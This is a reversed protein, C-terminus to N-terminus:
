DLFTDNYFTILGWLYKGQNKLYYYKRYKKSCKGIFYQIRWSM